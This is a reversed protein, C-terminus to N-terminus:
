KSQLWRTISHQAIGVLLEYNPLLREVLRQGDYKWFEQFFRNSSTPERHPPQKGRHIFSSRDDYSDGLIQRIESESLDTPYKEFWHKDLLHKMDNSPNLEKLSDVVDEYKHAVVDNWCATPSFKEIFRIYREKLYQEKGRAQMYASLLEGFEADGEARAKWRPELSNINKVDNRKVAKQAVTEIASVILLYALGFDNRKASLSLHVLRIAQMAVLYTNYPASLLKKILATVVGQYIELRKKSISTYVGGPGATLVPHQIALQTLDQESLQQRRCLYGDRTSGCTRGTSFSFISALAIGYLHSNHGGAWEPNDVHSIFASYAGPLHVRVTPHIKCDPM